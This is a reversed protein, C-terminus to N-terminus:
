STSSVLQKFRLESDHDLKFYWADRSSAMRNYLARSHVREISLTLEAGSGKFAIKYLPMRFVWRRWWNPRRTTMAGVKRGEWSRLTTFRCVVDFQFHSVALHYQRFFAEHPIEYRTDDLVYYMNKRSPDVEHDGDENVGEKSLSRTFIEDKVVLWANEIVAHLQLFDITIASM